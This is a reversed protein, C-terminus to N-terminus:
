VLQWFFIGGVVVCSYFVCLVFTISNKQPQNATRCHFLILTVIDSECRPTCTVKVGLVCSSSCFSTPVEAWTTGPVLKIRKANRQHQFGEVAFPSTVLPHVTDGFATCFISSM